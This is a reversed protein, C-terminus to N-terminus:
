RTGCVKRCGSTSICSLNRWERLKIREGVRVNGQAFSQWRRRLQDARSLLFGRMADPYGVPLRSLTM